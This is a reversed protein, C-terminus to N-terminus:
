PEFYVVAAGEGRCTIPSTEGECLLAITEGTEKDTAFLNGRRGAVYDAHIEEGIECSVNEVSLETGCRTPGSFHGSGNRPSPSQVKEIVTKTVVTTGSGGGGPVILSLAILISAAAVAGVIATAARM